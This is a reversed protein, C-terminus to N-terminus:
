SIFLSSLTGGSGKWAIVTGGSDSIAMTTEAPISVSADSALVTQSGSSWKSLTVSYTNTSVYTWRLQYGSKVSGPSAMDLWLAVYRETIGPSVQM